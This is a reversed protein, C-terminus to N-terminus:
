KRTARWDFVRILDLVTDHTPTPVGIEHGRRAIQENLQTIETPRGARVDHAMSPLHSRGQAMTSLVSARFEADLHIGTAQAVAIGEDLLREILARAPSDLLEGLPAQVLAAIPNGAANAIGKRWTEAEIDETFQMPLGMADIVPALRRAFELADNEGGVFHPPEHLGVQVRLPGDPDATEDIGAGYRLVMRVVRPTGLTRIITRGPEIGTQYSVVYPLDGVHPRLSRCVDPLATTKTAIFVLDIPHIDALADISTVVDPRGHATLAGVVDIGHARIRSARTEDRAVLVTPVHAHTLAALSAGMPGAGVVAIRRLHPAPQDASPPMSPKM